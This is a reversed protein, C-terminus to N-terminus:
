CPGTAANGTTVDWCTYTPPQLQGGTGKRRYMYEIQRGRLSLTETSRDEGGGTSNAFSTVIVDILKISMHAGAPGAAVLPTQRVYLIAEDMNAGEVFYRRLPVSTFDVYKTVRLERPEAVDAELFAADSYSLVDICNQFGPDTTEGVLPPPLCLFMDLAARAPSCALLGAALLSFTTHRM